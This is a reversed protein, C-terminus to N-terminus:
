EMTSKREDGGDGIRLFREFIVRSRGIFLNSQRKKDGRFVPVKSVIVKRRLTREESDRPCGMLKTREPGRHDHM